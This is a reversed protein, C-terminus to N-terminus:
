GSILNSLCILCSILLPKFDAELRWLLLVVQGGPDVGIQKPKRARVRRHSFQLHFWGWAEMILDEAM